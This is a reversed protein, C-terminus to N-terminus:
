GADEQWAEAGERVLLPVLALATVGDIWWAASLWQAVLGVIVAASLYACAVAEVADTRLARSGIREAIRAKARALLPMVPIAAAAVVLGPLSLQQGSGTWLSWVAAAAVYVALAFLLLAGIRAARREVPEPFEEGRALEITLRWLLLGVSAFEILSDIGFALLTLSHAAIGAGIAIGAEGVMWGATLLELRLARAVLGRREPSGDGDTM